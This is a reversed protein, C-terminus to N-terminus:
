PQRERYLESSDLVFIAYVTERTHEVARVHELVQGVTWDASVAVFETTMIGGACDPPYPLLQDLATKTTPSVCALLDYTSHARAHINPDPPQEAAQAPAASFYRPPWNGGRRL